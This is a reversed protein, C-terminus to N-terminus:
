KQADLNAIDLVSSTRHRENSPGAEYINTLSDNNINSKRRFTLPLHNCDFTEDLILCNHKCKRNQAVKDFNRRKKRDEIEPPGHKYSSKLIGALNTLFLPLVTWLNQWFSTPEFGLWFQIDTSFKQVGYVWMVIAVKIAGLSLTCTNLGFFLGMTDGSYLTLPLSQIFGLFCVLGIIYITKVSCFESHLLRSMTSTFMALYAVLAAMMYLYIYLVFIKHADMFETSLPLIAFLLYHPSEALDVKVCETLKLYLVRVILSRAFAMAIFVMAFILVANDVMTFPSMTGFDYVGILGVGFPDTVLNIGKNYSSNKLSMIEYFAQTTYQTSFLLFILIFTTSFVGWLFSLKFIRLLATDTISAIFFNCIWVIAIIFFRMSLSNRDLGAFLKLYNLHASTHKLNVIVENNCKIKIDQSSVCSINPPLNQCKSWAPTKNMSTLLFRVSDALDIAHLIASLDTQIIIGYSVGKLLPNMLKGTDLKRTYQKIFFDMFMYSIGIGVAYIIYLFLHAHVVLVRSFLDFSFSNLSFAHAVFLFKKISQWRFHSSASFENKDTVSSSRSRYDLYYHRM